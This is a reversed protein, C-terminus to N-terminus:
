IEKNYFPVDGMNAAVMSFGSMSLLEPAQFRYVSISKSMFYMDLFTKLYTESNGNESVHSINDHSLTKVPIDYLRDLFVKSDSFVFLDYPSHQAKVDLIGRICRQILRERDEQNDLYNDFYTNEFKELANVFRIHISVYTKPSIKLQKYAYDLKESPQFLENFLDFWRYNTDSMVVDLNGGSYRYCHYQKNPKLMTRKRWVVESVIKTDFLSYELEDLDMEWDYRPKFYESLRFPTEWYLKFLYGNAKAINYQIVITKIRDAIGAHKKYPEFVCYYVNRRVARVPRYKLRYISNKIFNKIDCMLFLRNM